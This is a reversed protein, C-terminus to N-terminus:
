SLFKCKSLELLQAMILEGRSLIYISASFIRDGRKNPVDCRYLGLPGTLIGKKVLRVERQFGIRAFKNNISTDRHNPITQNNPFYWNGVAGMYNNDSNRCCATNVNETHCILANGPKDRYMVDTGIEEILVLENPLYVTSGM